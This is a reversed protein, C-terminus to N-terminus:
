ANVMWSLIDCCGIIDCRAMKTLVTHVKPYFQSIQCDYYYPTDKDTTTYKKHVSADISPPPTSPPHILMSEPCPFSVHPLLIYM